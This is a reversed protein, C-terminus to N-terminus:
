AITAKLPVWKEGGFGRRESAKIDGPLTVIDGVEFVQSIDYM